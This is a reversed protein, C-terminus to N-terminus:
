RVPTPTRTPTPLATLTAARAVTAQAATLTPAPQATPAVPPGTPVALPLTPELTPEATPPAPPVTPQLAPAVPAVPAAPVSRTAVATTSLTPQVTATGTAQVTATAQATPEATGRTQADTFAGVTPAATGGTAATPATAEAAPTVTTQAVPTAVVQRTGVVGGVADPLTGRETATIPQWAVQSFMGGGFTPEQPASAATAAAPQSAQPWWMFALGAAAGVMVVSSAARRLPGKDGWHWLGLILRKGLSFLTYVLGATPLLLLLAQGASGLMGLLDGHSQAALFGQGQQGLSDWATALVRPVSRVMVLLLVCLLPVTILIYGAFVVNAWWKLPPLKRGKWAKIPVVRRMFAAMQSFFDPVGTVDALAWYGDLRLFPLLQHIIELNIMLVMLLLFEQGTLVFVGLIALAFILNFYFGGLDTRVRAWRSLRYNDSVDTFFAPYVIYMGAGMGKIRGGAYHLAAAHGLEHFAASVVVVVLVLLMLGPTYLADHIGGGVGHVFYIWGEAAAAVLLVAILIPPWFLFKLVSTIPTIKDPSIMKMRMNLALPSAGGSRAATAPKGDAMLVLGRPILLRAVLSQVMEANVAKAPTSVKQAIDEVSNEGTSQEAIHYLLETVQVYGAGDRELLWPPNEFASEQMQGALKVGPALKPREPLLRPDAQQTTPAGAQTQVQATHPAGDAAGDRSAQTPEAPTTSM